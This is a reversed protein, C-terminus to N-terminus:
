SPIFLLTQSVMASLGASSEAKASTGAFLADLKVCKTADAELAQRKKDRLKEAGGKRKSKHKLM